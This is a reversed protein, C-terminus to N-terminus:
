HMSGPAGLLAHVPHQPNQPTKSCKERSQGEVQVQPTLAAPLVPQSQTKEAGSCSGRGGRRWYGTFFVCPLGYVMLRMIELQFGRDPYAM